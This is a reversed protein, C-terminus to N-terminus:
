IACTKSKHRKDGARATEVLPALRQSTGKIGLERPGSKDPHLEHVKKNSKGDTLELNIPICNM